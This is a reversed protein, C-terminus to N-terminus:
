VYVDYRSRIQGNLDVTILEQPTRVVGEEQRESILDDRASDTPGNPSRSQNEMAQREASGQQGYGRDSQGSRGDSIDVSVSNHGQAALQERLRPLMSDLAERTSGQLAVISVKIHDKEKGVRVSIPGMGSPTVNIVANKVGENIMWRINGTMAKDADGQLIPMNLPATITQTSGADARQLVPATVIGGSSSLFMNDASLTGSEATDGSAINTATNIFSQAAQQRAQLQAQALNTQAVQQESKSVALKADLDAAAKLDEDTALKEAVGQISATSSELSPSILQQSSSIVQQTSGAGAAATNVLSGAVTSANSGTVRLTEIESDLNAALNADQVSSATNGQRPVSQGVLQAQRSALEASSIQEGPIVAMKGAAGNAGPSTTESSITGLRVGWTGAVENQVSSKDFQLQVVASKAADGGSASEESDSLVADVTESASAVVDTLEIEVDGESNLLSESSSETTTSEPVNADPANLSRDPAEAIDTNESIPNGATAGSKETEEVARDAKTASSTVKKSSSEANQQTDEPKGTGSGSRETRDANRSRRARDTQGQQSHDIKDDASRVSEHRNVESRDSARTLEHSFSNGTSNNSNLRSTSTASHKSSGISPKLLAGASSQAADSM